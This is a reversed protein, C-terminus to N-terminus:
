PRKVKFGCEVMLLLPFYWGPFGGGVADKVTGTVWVMVGIIGSLLIGVAFAKAYLAMPKHGATWKSIVIPLFLSIPILPVSLLAKTEKALGAEVLKLDSVGHVAAFGIQLIM